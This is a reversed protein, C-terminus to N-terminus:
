KLPLESSPLCFYCVKHSAWASGTHGPHGMLLGMAGYLADRM